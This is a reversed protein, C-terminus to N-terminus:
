HSVKVGTYAHAYCCASNELLPKIICNMVLEIAVVNGALADNIVKNVITKLEEEREALCNDFVKTLDSM